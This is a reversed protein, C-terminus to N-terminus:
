GERLYKKISDAYIKANDKFDKLRRVGVADAEPIVPLYDLYEQYKELDIEPKQGYWDKVFPRDWEFRMVLRLLNLVSM